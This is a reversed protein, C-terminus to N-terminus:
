LENNFYKKRFEPNRWSNLQDCLTKWDIFRGVVNFTKLDFHRKKFRNEKELNKLENLIWEFIEISSKTKDIQLELIKGFWKFKKKIIGSNIRRNSVFWYDVRLQSGFIYLNLYGIIENYNWYYSIDKEVVRQYNEFYFGERVGPFKEYLKERKSKLELDYKEISTRYIPIEFFIPEVTM